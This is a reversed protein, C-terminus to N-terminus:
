DLVLMPELGWGISATITITRTNIKDITRLKASYNNKITQKTSQKTLRGIANPRMSSDIEIIWKNKTKTTWDNKAKGFLHKQNTTPKIPRHNLWNTLQQNSQNIPKIPRLRSKSRSWNINKINNKCDKKQTTWSLIIGKFLWANVDFRWWSWTHMNRSWKSLGRFKKRNHDSDILVISCFLKALTVATM